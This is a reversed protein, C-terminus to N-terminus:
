FRVEAIRFGIAARRGVRGEPTLTPLARPEPLPLGLGPDHGLRLLAGPPPLASESGRTSRPATLAAGVVLGATAGMTPILVATKEDAVDALLDIGFGLLGGAVGSLTILRVRGVSPRWVRAVPVAALLAANGVAAMWGFLSADTPEGDAAALVSFAAGYATGWASADQVLAV